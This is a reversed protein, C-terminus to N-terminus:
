RSVIMREPVKLRKFTEYLPPESDLISRIKENEPDDLDRPNFEEGLAAFVHSPDNLAFLGLPVNLSRTLGGCQRQVFNGLKRHTTAAAVATWDYYDRVGLLLTSLSGNGIVYVSVINRDAILRTIDHRSADIALEPRQGHAMLRDALATAEIRFAALEFAGAETSPENDTFSSTIIATRGLRVPVSLEIKDGLEMWKALASAFQQRDSAM